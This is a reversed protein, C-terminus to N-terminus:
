FKAQRADYGYVDPVLHLHGTEDVWSTFYVMFVPIPATLKVQKEVGANMAAKMRADDWEPQDRLVYKALAEPEDLRVCGHSFARTERSFLSETPTDHLYVDFESPLLFKV